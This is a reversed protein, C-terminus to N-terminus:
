LEQSSDLQEIIPTHRLLLENFCDVLSDIFRDYVSRECFKPLRGCRRRIFPRTRKL